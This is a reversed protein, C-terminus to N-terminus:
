IRVVALTDIASALSSGAGVDNLAAQAAMAAVGMPSQAIEPNTERDTFQGTGVLIPTSDLM